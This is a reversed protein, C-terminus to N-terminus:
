HTNDEQPFLPRRYFSGTSRAQTGRNTKFPPSAYKSAEDRYNRPRWSNVSLNQYQSKTDLPPLNRTQRTSVRDGFSNGHKDVRNQYHQSTIDLSKGKGNDRWCNSNASQDNKHKPLNALGQTTEIQVGPEKAIRPRAETVSRNLPLNTGLLLLNTSTTVLIYYLPQPTTQASRQHM